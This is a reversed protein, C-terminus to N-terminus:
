ALKAQDLMIRVAKTQIYNDLGDKGMEKGFGSQNFGGFPVAEHFSNYCNIWVTGAHLNEAVYHAKSIDQTHVGAALGYETDNALALV